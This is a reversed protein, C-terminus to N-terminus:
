RIVAADLNGGYPSTMVGCTVGSPATEATMSPAASTAGDIRIGEAEQLSIAAIQRGPQTDNRARASEWGASTAERVPRSLRCAAKELRVLNGGKCGQHFAQQQLPEHPRIRIGIVYQPRVVLACDLEPAAM